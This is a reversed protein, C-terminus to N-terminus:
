PATFLLGGHFFCEYVRVSQCLIEEHGQFWNADGEVHCRYHYEGRQYSEPGRYPLTLTAARLAEKLFAGSYREDLVRGCYNMAYVAQGNEWIAEEGIFRESGLYTDYYLFPSEEYRFDRSVPRCSAAENADAAYTKAAAKLRFRLIAETASPKQQVPLAGCPPDRLLSDVTVHLLDSIRVLNSLDPCAAGTEWKAVAQRSVNLKQAFSEQTYGRERRLLPLKEALRM